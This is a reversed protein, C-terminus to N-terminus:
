MGPDEVSYYTVHLNRVEDLQRLSDMETKVSCITKREIQFRIKDGEIDDIALGRMKLESVVRCINRSGEIEVVGSAVIM